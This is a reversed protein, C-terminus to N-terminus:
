YNFFEHLISTIISSQVFNSTFPTIFLLWILLLIIKKIHKTKSCRTDAPINMGYITHHNISQTKKYHIMSGM